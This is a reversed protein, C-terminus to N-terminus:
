IRYTRAANDHFLKRKEQKDMFTMWHLTPSDEVKGVPVDNGGGSERLRAERSDPSWQFLNGSERSHRVKSQPFATRGGGPRGGTWPPPAHISVETGRM